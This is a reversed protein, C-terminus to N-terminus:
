ATPQFKALWRATALRERQSPNTDATPHSVNKLTDICRTGGHGARLLCLGIGIPRHQANYRSWWRHCRLNNRETSM